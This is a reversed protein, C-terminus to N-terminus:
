CVLGDMMSSLYVEGSAFTPTKDYGQSMKSYLQPNDLLFALNEHSVLESVINVKPNKKKVINYIFITQADM